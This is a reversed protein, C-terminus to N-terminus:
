ATRIVTIHETGSEPLWVEGPRGHIQRINAGPRPFDFREFKESGPDFSYMANATWESVWPRDREDVWVAYAKPADGPLKYTRWQKSAPDHM